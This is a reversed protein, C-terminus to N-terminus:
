ENEPLKIISKKISEKTLEKFKISIRPEKEIEAYFKYGANIYDKNTLENIWLSKKYQGNQINNMKIVNKGNKTTAIEFQEKSIEQLIEDAEATLEIEKEQLNKAPIPESVDKVINEEQTTTNEFVGATIDSTHPEQTQNTEIEKDDTEDAFIDDVNRVLTTQPTSENVTRMQSNDDEGVVETIHSPINSSYFKLIDLAAARFIQKKLMQEIHNRHFTSNKQKFSKSDKDWEQFYKKEIEAKSLYISYSNGDNFVILCFAGQINKRKELSAKIHKMKGAKLQLMNTEPDFTTQSAEISFTDGEYVLDSIKQRIGINRELLIEYGQYGIMFNCKKGYPVLHGVNGGISLGCKALQMAADLISSPECELLNGKESNAVAYCIDNAYDEFSRDIKNLSLRSELVNQKKVILNQLTKIAENM